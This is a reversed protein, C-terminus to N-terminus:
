KYAISCLVAKNVLVVPCEQWGGECADDQIRAATLPFFAGAELSLYGQADSATKTHIRGAVLITPLAVVVDVTKRALSAFFVKSESRRDDGLLMVLHINDKILACTNLEVLAHNEARPCIRVNELRLFRTNQDNLVDLLRSTGTVVTGHTDHHFSVFVATASHSNVANGDGQECTRQPNSARPM